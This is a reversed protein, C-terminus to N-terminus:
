LVSKVFRFIDIDSLLKNLLTDIVKEKKPIAIYIIQTDPDFHQPEYYTFHLIRFEVGKAKMYKSFTELAEKESHNNNDEDFEIRNKTNRPLRFFLLKSGAKVISNWRAIRRSYDDEVKSYEKVSLTTLSKNTHNKHDHLFAIMSDRNVLYLCTSDKYLEIADINDKSAFGNFNSEIVKNIGWMPSGVYDFPLRPYSGKYITEIYMRSFCNAGLSIPYYGMQKILSEM